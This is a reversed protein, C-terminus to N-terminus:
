PKNIDSLTMFRLLMDTIDREVTHFRHKCSICRRRRWVITNDNRPRSDVVETEGGCNPCIM